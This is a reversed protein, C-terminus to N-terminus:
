HMYLYVESIRCNQSCRKHRIKPPQRMIKPINKSCALTYWEYLHKNVTAYVSTHPVNSIQVRKDSANSAYITLISERHKLIMAVQTRRCGFMEALAGHKIGTNKYYFKIVEIKKELTLDNRKKSLSM